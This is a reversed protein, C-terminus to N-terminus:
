TCKGLIKVTKEVTKDATPSVTFQPSVLGSKGASIFVSEGARQNGQMQKFISTRSGSANNKIFGSKIKEGSFPFDPASWFTYLGFVAEEPLLERGLSDKEGLM